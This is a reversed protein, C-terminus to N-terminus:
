AIMAELQEFGIVQVGHYYKLNRLHVDQSVLYDAGAELACALFVNDSLDPTFLGTL